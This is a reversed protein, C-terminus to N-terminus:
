MGIMIVGILGTEDAVRAVGAGRFTHWLWNRTDATMSESLDRHLVRTGAEATATVPTTDVEILYTPLEALHV